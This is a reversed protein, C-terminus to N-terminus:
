QIGTLQMYSYHVLLLELSDVLTGKL